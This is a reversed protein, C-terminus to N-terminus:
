IIGLSSALMFIAVKKKEYYPTKQLGLDLYINLDNQRELSLYKKEIIQREVHDLSNNLAREMQIVKLENEVDNELLKPFIHGQIGNENLELKNQQQIKLAKYKKLEKVVTSRIQKEDVEPFLSLQSSMKEGGQPIIIKHSNGRSPSIRAKKNKKIGGVLQWQKKM